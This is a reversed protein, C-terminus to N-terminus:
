AENFMSNHAWRHRWELLHPADSRSDEPLAGEFAEREQIITQLLFLPDTKSATRGRGRRHPRRCLWDFWDMGGPAVGKVHRAVFPQLGEALLELAKGVLDRNSLEM